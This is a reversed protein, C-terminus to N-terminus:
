SEYEAQQVDKSELTLSITPVAAADDPTGGDIPELADKKRKKIKLLHWHYYTDEGTGQGRANQRGCRWLSM